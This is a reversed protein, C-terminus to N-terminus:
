WQRCLRTRGAQRRENRLLGWGRFAVVRATHAVRQAHLSPPRALGPGGEYWATTYAGTAAMTYAGTGATLDLLHGAALAAKTALGAFCCDLIVIKVAAGSGTLAERVDAFRLSTAARRNLYKYEWTGILIARSRTYDRLPRRDIM